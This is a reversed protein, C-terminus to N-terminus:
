VPSDKFHYYLSSLLSSTCWETAVVGAKLSNHVTHIGCSDINIPTIHFEESLNMKMKDYFKWNVNPGDM